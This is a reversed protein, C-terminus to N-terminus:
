PKRFRQEVSQAVGAKFPYFHEGLCSLLRALSPHANQSSFLIASADRWVLSSPLRSFRNRSTLPNKPGKSILYTMKICHKLSM